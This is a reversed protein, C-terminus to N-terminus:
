NGCPLSPYNQRSGAKPRLNRMGATFSRRHIRRRSPRSRSSYAIVTTLGAPVIWSDGPELLLTQDGLQLEARGKVAYGVTEDDRVSAPLKKGADINEWLRMGLSVGCALYKQGMAGKPSSGSNVKHVSTEAM